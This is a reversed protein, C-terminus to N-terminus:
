DIWNMRATPSTAGRGIAIRLAVTKVGGSADRVHLHVATSGSTNTERRASEFYFPEQAGGRAGEGKSQASVSTSASCSGDDDVRGTILVNFIGM